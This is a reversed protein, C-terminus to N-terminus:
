GAQGMLVLAQLDPTPSGGSKELTVAFAQARTIDKMRQLGNADASMDFVGADVPNGDVLAWLQYQKGAPPEPLNLVDLFVRNAGHDWYVRAKAGTANATGSLAVLDTRPDMVVALQDQSHQYSARQVQLDQALVEHETELRALETRTHRLERLLMFNGTASLLLAVVSAAALWRWSGSAARVAPLERVIPAHTATPTAGIRELVKARAAPPPVVASKKAFQELGEEIRELEERVAADSARMREVLATDQADTQGIVYAELLGSDILERATM